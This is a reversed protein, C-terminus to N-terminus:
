AAPPLSQPSSSVWPSGLGPRPPHRPLNSCGPGPPWLLLRVRVPKATSESDEGRASCMGHAEATGPARAGACHWATSGGTGVPPGSSRLLDPSPRRRSHVGTGAATDERHQHRWDVTCVCGAGGVEGGASPYPRAKQKTHNLIFGGLLPVSLAAPAYVCSFTVCGRFLAFSLWRCRCPHSWLNRPEWDTLFVLTVRQRRYVTDLPHGLPVWLASLSEQFCLVPQRNGLPPLSHPPLAPPEPDASALWHIHTSLCGAGPRYVPADEIGRSLGRRFPIHPPPCVPRVSSSQQVASVSLVRCPLRRWYFRFPRLRGAETGGSQRM